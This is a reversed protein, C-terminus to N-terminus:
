PRPSALFDAANTRLRCRITSSLALRMCFWSSILFKFFGINSPLPGNSLRTCSACTADSGLAMCPLKNPLNILPARAACSASACLPLGCAAMLNKCSFFCFSASSRALPLSSAAHACLLPGRKPIVWPSAALFGCCTACIYVCLAKASISAAM